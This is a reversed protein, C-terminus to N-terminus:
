RTGTRTLIWPHGLLLISQAALIQPTEACTRQGQSGPQSFGHGPMSLPGVELYSKNERQASDRLGTLLGALSDPGLTM